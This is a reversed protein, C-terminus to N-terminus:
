WAYAQPPLITRERLRSDAVPASQTRIGFAAIFGAIKAASATERDQLAARL